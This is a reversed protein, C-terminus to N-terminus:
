GPTGKSVIIYFVIMLVIIVVALIAAFVAARGSSGFIIPFPGIVIVGGVETHGEGESHKLAGLVAGLAILLVGIILLVFGAGILTEGEM